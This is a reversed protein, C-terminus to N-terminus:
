RQDLPTRSKLADSLDHPLDHLIELARVDRYDIRRNGDRDLSAEWPERVPTSTKVNAGRDNRGPGTFPLSCGCSTTSLWSATLFTYDETGIVTNNSFDADRTGDWPCGGPLTGTGYQFLFFTVDNIDVDGDNDTDGGELELQVGMVYHTGDMSLVLPQNGWLTHQEDKACLSTWTGCPVEIFGTFNGTVDFALDVSVDTSCSDTVFRICRTTATTVGVLQIDVMVMNTSSVTVDFTDITQNGCDDTAVCTVTTTEGAPFATGSPPFCEVTVGGCNDTAAPTAFTVVASDCGGNVGADAATLVDPSGALIPPTGDGVFPSSDELTTAIATGQFSLESDFAQGLDFTVSTPNCEEALTFVLTALLADADSGSGGGFGLSGDLRLEGALVEALAASQIHFGYPGASYSSLAGEYTMAATDYNLFAQFGTANSALNRQYLDVEVQVGPTNCDQDTQCAAAELSLTSDNAVIMTMAARGIETGNDFAALYFEYHGAVTPDFGAFPAENFFEMNWSQQILNSTATLGMYTSADTGEAGGSQLTLNTGMSHDWYPAVQPVSFPIVSGLTIPDFVLYNTASSPDFDMGLEYTLDDVVRGTSGDYDTNISWDFNWRATTPSVWGAGGTPAGGPFTYTGDGNSNFTNEPVNSGNFRTKGRLGIELGNGRTTTFGGNTVGSGAIVNNTVNEDFSEPQETVITISTRAVEIGGDFAVLHFDYRGAVTPDFSDFPAENYFEPTWSNQALNNNALLTIYTPQDGAEVGAGMATSNDGISHDWYAQVAPADYPLVSNVAIPDFVLSHTGPGGSFDMSLEYTLDDLNNTTSGDYNTNVSWEISWFPTTAGAWGPLGGGTPFGANFSYTGDGNSNFTNEAVNVANFRLKGRLGLEVGANRDVTYSGNLNGGGFIANNTVNQDCILAPTGFTTTEGARYFNTTLQNVYVNAGANGSGVGVQASTVIAGPATIKAYISAITESGVMVASTSMASLTMPTSLSNASNTRNFFTWKGNTFDVTETHWLSDSTNGNGGGPEYVMIKDWANEGTRGSVGTSGFDSTKVGFKVSATVTPTGVGMWSYEMTMGAGFTDMGTAHGIGDDKRDSIQSKGAGIGPAITLHVAGRHTGAPIVGPAAGFSIQRRIDANHASTGSATAEPDDTLTDSVLNTGASQSGLGDARTDDSYWGNQSLQSTNQALATVPAGGVFVAFPVVARLLHLKLMSLTILHFLRDSYSIAYIAM